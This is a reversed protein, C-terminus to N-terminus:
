ARSLTMLANPLESRNLRMLYTTKESPYGGEGNGVRLEKQNLSKRTINSRLYTM